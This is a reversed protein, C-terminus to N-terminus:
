PYKRIFGHEGTSEIFRKLTDAAVDRQAFPGLWVRTGTARGRNTDVVTTSPKFGQARLKEVLQKASQKDTFVGVQVVWRGNNAIKTPTTTAEPTSASASSTSSAPKDKDVAKPTATQSDGWNDAEGDAPTIKSILM